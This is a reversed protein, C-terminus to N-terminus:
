YTCNRCACRVIQVIASFYVSRLIDTRFCNRGCCTMGYGMYNMGIKKEIQYDPSPIDVREVWFDDMSRKVINSNPRRFNDYSVFIDEEITIEKGIMMEAEEEPLYPDGEVDPAPSFKTPLFEVITYTGLIEQLIESKEEISLERELKQEPEEELKGSLFIRIVLYFVESNWGAYCLLLSEGM